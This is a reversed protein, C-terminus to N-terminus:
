GGVNVWDGASNKIQRQKYTSTVTQLSNQPIQPFDPNQSRAVVLDNAVPQQYTYPVDIYRETPEQPAPDGALNFGFDYLGERTRDYLNKGSDLVNKLTKDISTVDVKSGGMTAAFINSSQSVLDTFTINVKYAEPLLVDKAGFDKFIDMRRTTGISEISIDSIYAAAMYVGGLSFADVTYLKPPIYSMMTTRTKLNQFMLLNVFCYHDYASEVDITNYLPFSVTLSQDSTGGYKKVEEFGIGPTYAGVAAGAVTAINQSMSSSGNSSQDSISDLIGNAKDWSHTLKKLGSNTNLYPLNYAFGTRECAYMTLFTDLHANPNDNTFLNKVIDVANGGQQFLQVLNTTLTGYKLEYETAWISPVEDNNGNNKWKMTNLVDVIGVDGGKPKLVTYDNGLKINGFPKVQKTEARFFKNSAFASNIGASSSNM